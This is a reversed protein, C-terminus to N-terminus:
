RDGHKRGLSDALIKKYEESLYPEAEGCGIFGADMLIQAADDGPRGKQRFYLDIAERILDSTRLGTKRRLYELKSAHESDLRANVRM